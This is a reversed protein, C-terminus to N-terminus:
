ARVVLYDERPFHVVLEGARLCRARQGAVELAVRAAAGGVLEGARPARRRIAIEHVDSPALEGTISVPGVEEPLVVVRDGYALGNPLPAPEGEFPM